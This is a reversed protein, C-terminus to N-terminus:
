EQVLHPIVWEQLKLVSLEYMRFGEAGRFQYVRPKHHRHRGMTAPGTEDVVMNERFLAQQFWGELFGSEARCGRILSAAAPFSGAQVLAPSFLRSCMARTAFSMRLHASPESTFGLDLHGAPQRRAKKVISKPILVM